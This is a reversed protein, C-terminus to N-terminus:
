NKPFSNNKITKTGDNGAVRAREKHAVIGKLSNIASEAYFYLGKKSSIYAITNMSYDPKAEYPTRLAKQYPL